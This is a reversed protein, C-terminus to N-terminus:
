SPPTAMLRAVTMVAHVTASTAVTSIVEGDRAPETKPFMVSVSRPNATSAGFLRLTVHSEETALDVEVEVESLDHNPQGDILVPGEGQIWVEPDHFDGQLDEVAAFFSQLTGTADDDDGVADDDDAM